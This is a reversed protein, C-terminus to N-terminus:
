NGYREERMLGLQKVFPLDRETVEVLGLLCMPVCLEVM